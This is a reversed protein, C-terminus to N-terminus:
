LNELINEIDYLVCRHMMGLMVKGKDVILCYRVSLMINWTLTKNTYDVM